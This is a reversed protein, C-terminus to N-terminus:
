SVIASTNQLYQQLLGQEFTQRREHQREANLMWGGALKMNFNACCAFSSNHQQKTHLM